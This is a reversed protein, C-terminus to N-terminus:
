RIAREVTDTAAIQGNLAFGAWHLTPSTPLCGCSSRVVLQPSLIDQVPTSPATGRVRELLLALGRRGLAAIPQAVTTLPPVAMASPLTNDVSIIALDEPVRLGREQAAHLAGVAMQDNSAFVARPQLGANFLSHLGQYGGGLTWDQWRITGADLRIRQAELGQRFGEVRQQAEPLDQPGALCAVATYGHEVLHEAARRGIAANDTLMTDVADRGVQRDLLVLPIQRQLVSRIGDHGLGSTVLLIGDIRKEDLLALHAREREPDHNSSCLILTYGADFAADGVQRSLEAFFPNAIDPVVLAVARTRKRAMRRALLNPKYALQEIARLVKERTEDTVPRPGDNMVYSVTAASVGALRAVDDRTASM